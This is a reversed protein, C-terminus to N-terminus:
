HRLRRAAFLATITLIIIFLSPYDKGSAVNCEGCDSEYSKVIGGDDGYVAAGSFTGPEAIQDSQDNIGSDKDYNNDVQQSHVVSVFSFLLILCLLRFSLRIM